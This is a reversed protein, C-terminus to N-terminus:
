GLRFSKSNWTVGSATKGTPVSNTAEWKTGPWYTSQEAGVYSMEICIEM